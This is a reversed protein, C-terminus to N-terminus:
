SVSCRERIEEVTLWVVMPVLVGNTKAAVAMQYGEKPESHSSKWEKDGWKAGVKLLAEHLTWLEYFKRLRSEGELMEYQKVNETSFIRRAIADLNKRKEMKEIDIGVPVDSCAVVVVDGSHSLSKHAETAMALLLHGFLFQSKRSNSKIRGFRDQEVPSLRGVLARESKPDLSDPLYMLLIQVSGKM